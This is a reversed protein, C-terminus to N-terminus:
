KQKKSAHFQDVYDALKLLPLLGESDEKGAPMNHFDYGRVKTACDYEGLLNDLLLLVGYAVQNYNEPSVGKAYIILDLSDGSIVPFFKMQEPDLEHDKTTLKMRKMQEPILRQRFAVFQWGKVVPARAVISKVLDFLDENGNASVTMTIIGKQAPELEIALGERIKKVQTLLETFFKDPDSEFNRLRKENGKFWVWFNEVADKKVFVMRPLHTEKKTDDFVGATIAAVIVPIIFLIQKMVNREFTAM